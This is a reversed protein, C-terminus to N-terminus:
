RPPNHKVFDESEEDDLVFGFYAVRKVTTEIIQQNATIAWSHQRWLGDRSLAYGTCISGVGNRWLSAANGHCNVPKGKMIKSGRGSIIAGREIISTLDPDNPDIGAAWGGYRLLIQKLQEVKPNDHAVDPTNKRERQRTAWEASPMETRFRPMPENAEEVLRMYRRLVTQSDNSM